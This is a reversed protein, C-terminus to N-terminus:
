ISEYRLKEILPKLTNEWVEEDIPGIQKYRIIGKKDIVFTEPTGYVGWDIASQGNRDTVVIQYPNGHVTLWEKAATPDDKYNIGMLFINDRKALKLLQDHEEACAVCWTAWVNVLVVHGALNKNTIMKEQNFLDPLSFAPSLKNILPSPIRDPHLTLGRWLLIFIIVVIMLPFIQKFRIMKM